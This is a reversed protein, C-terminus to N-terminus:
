EPENNKDENIEVIAYFKNDDYSYGLKVRDKKGLMVLKRGVFDAAAQALEKESLIYKM